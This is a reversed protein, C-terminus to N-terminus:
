VNESRAKIEDSSAQVPGSSLDTASNSTEQVVEQGPLLDRSADIGILEETNEVGGIEGVTSVVEAPQKDVFSVNVVMEKQIADQVLKSIGGSTEIAYNNILAAKMDIHHIIMVEISDRFSAGLSCLSSPNIDDLLSEITSSVSDGVADSIVDNIADHVQESIDMEYSVYHEIAENAVETITDTAYEMLSEALASYNIEVEPEGLEVTIESM